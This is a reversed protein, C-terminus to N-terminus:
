CNLNAGFWMWLLRMGSMVVAQNMKVNSQWRYTAYKRSAKDVFCKDKYQVSVMTKLINWICSTEHLVQTWTSIQDNTTISVSKKNACVDVFIM